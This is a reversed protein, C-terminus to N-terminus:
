GSKEINKGTLTTKIVRPAYQNKATDTIVDFTDQFFQQPPIEWIGPKAVVKGQNIVIHISECPRKFQCVGAHGRSM